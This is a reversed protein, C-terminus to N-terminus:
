KKIEKYKDTKMEHYREVAVSTFLSLLGLIIGMVLVKMLAALGPDTLFQYLGYLCLIAASLCFLLWGIGRSLRAYIAPWLSEWEKETPELFEIQETMHLLRRFSREEARCTACGELHERVEAAAEEPLEGDLYGMLLERIEKCDM